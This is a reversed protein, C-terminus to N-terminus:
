DDKQRKEVYALILEAADELSIRSTNLMMDYSNCDGWKLGTYYQYYEARNKDEKELEEVTASGYLEKARKEKFERDAYIFFSYHNKYEKLVYDSCRGLFVCSGQMALKQIIRAQELFMQNYVPINGMGMVGTIGGLGINGRDYALKNVSDIDVSEAGIEQAALYLIQRDYCRVKMKEALIDSLEKGGSGYQRSISIITNKLLSMEGKQRYLARARLKSKSYERKLINDIAM